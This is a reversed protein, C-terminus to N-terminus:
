ELYFEWSCWHEKPHPDPPCRICKAKFRPNIERAFASLHAVGVPKCPFEGRGAKQRAQQPRCNTITVILHGDKLATELGSVTAFSILRMARQLDAISGEHIGLLEKLRRAETIAFRSWANKDHEIATELGYKEEIGLFWYGDLSMFNKALLEAYRILEERTMGELSNSFSM